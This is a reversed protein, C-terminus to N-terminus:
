RKFKLFSLSPISKKLNPYYKRQKRPSLAEERWKMADKVAEVLSPILSFDFAHTDPEVDSESSGSDEKENSNFRFSTGPESDESTSSLSPHASKRSVRRMGEKVAAKIYSKVQCADAM